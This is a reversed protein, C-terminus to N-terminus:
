HDRSHSLVADYSCLDSFSPGVCHHEVVEKVPDEVLETYVLLRLRLLYHDQHVIGADVLVLRDVRCSPLELRVHKEVGLVRRPEVRYLLEEAANFSPEPLTILPRSLLYM